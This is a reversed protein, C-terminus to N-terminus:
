VSKSIDLNELEMEDNDYFEFNDVETKYLDPIFLSVPHTSVSMAVGESLGMRFKKLGRIMQPVESKKITMYFLCDTGPWVQTNKHRIQKAWCSELGSHITYRFFGISEFHEELLRKMSGNIYILMLQYEM